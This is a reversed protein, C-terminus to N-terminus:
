FQKRFNPRATRVQNRGLGRVNKITPKLNSRKAYMGQAPRNLVDPDPNGPDPFGPIPGACQEPHSLCWVASFLAKCEEDDLFGKEECPSAMGFGIDYQGRKFHVAFINAETVDDAETYFDASRETKVDPAIKQLEGNADLKLRYVESTVLTQGPVTTPPEFTVAWKPLPDAASKEQQAHVYFNFNEPWGQEIVKDPIELPINRERILDALRSPDSLAPVNVTVKAINRARKSNVNWLSVKLDNFSKLAPNRVTQDAGAPDTVVKWFRLRDVYTRGRRTIEIPEVLFGNISQPSQSSWSGNILQPLTKLEVRNKAADDIVGVHTTWATVPVDVVLYPNQLYYRASIDAPPRKDADKSEDDSDNFQWFLLAGLGLLLLVPWWWSWTTPSLSSIPM